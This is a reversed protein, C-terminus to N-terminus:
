EFAMDLEIDNARDRWRRLIKGTTMDHLKKHEPTKGMREGYEKQYYAINEKIVFNPYKHIIGVQEDLKELQNEVQLYNNIRWEVDKVRKKSKIVEFDDVVKDVTIFLGLDIMFLSGDRRLAPQILDNFYGHKQAIRYVQEVFLNYQKKTVSGKRWKPLFVKEQGKELPIKGSERILYYRGKNEYERMFHPMISYNKLLQYTKYESKMARKSRKLGKEGKWIHPNYLSSDTNRKIVTGDVEWVESFEGRGLYNEDKIFLENKFFNNIRVKSKSIKKSKSVKRTKSVKKGKIM